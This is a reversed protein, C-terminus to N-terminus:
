ASLKKTVNAFEEGQIKAIKLELKSPQRSGDSGSITGSGWPSAGKVQTLDTLEPLVKTCGLPVYIMGHHALTSLGNVATMEVGGGTGTSVFFGATKHYLAGSAWLGGTSDIFAKLQTPFNGFRTPIGFMIGDYEKLINPNKIISFDPRAPAHLLRLIDSPLTEPVQFIDATAGTAEVGKKIEKALTAIHHYLSYIVIAIKAM